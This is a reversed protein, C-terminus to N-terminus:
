SKLKYGRVFMLHCASWLVVNIATVVLIGVILSGDHHGIFGYRFGDILYFFPNATAVDHWFGPLRDISYFTGSLFSLPAIVFNTISAVNDFKDAWIAVMLGLVSLMVSASVAHFLVIGLDFIRIPVSSPPMWGAVM